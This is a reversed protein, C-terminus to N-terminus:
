GSAHALCFASGRERKPNTNLLLIADLEKHPL